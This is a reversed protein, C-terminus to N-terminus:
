RSRPGRADDDDVLLERQDGVQRDRLVDEEAVLPHVAAQDVPVAGVGLRGREQRPHAQVLERDRGDALEADALLLEDLDGLREGLLDLQQDEVLRRRRQVVVVGLVQEAEQALQLRLADRRMMIEWLSLSIASIASVVVIMRSPRVTSVSSM